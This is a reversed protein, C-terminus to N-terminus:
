ERFKGILATKHKQQKNREYRWKKQKIIRIRLSRGQFMNIKDPIVRFINSQYRNVVSSSELPLTTRRASTFFCFHQLAYYFLSIFLCFAFHFYKQCWIIWVHRSFAKLNAYRWVTYKMWIACSLVPLGHNEQM